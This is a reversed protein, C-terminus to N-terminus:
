VVSRLGSCHCPSITTQLALRAKQQKRQLRKEALQRPAVIEEVVEVAKVANQQLHFDEPLREVAIVADEVITSSAQQLCMLWCVRRDSSVETGCEPSVATGPKFLCALVKAHPLMLRQQRHTKRRDLHLCSSKVHLVAPRGFHVSGCHCHPQQTAPLQSTHLMCPM